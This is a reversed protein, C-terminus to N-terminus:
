AIAEFLTYVTLPVKKAIFLKCVAIVLSSSQPFLIAVVVAKPM